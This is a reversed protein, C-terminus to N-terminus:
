NIRISEYYLEKLEGDEAFAVRTLNESIDLLVRKM